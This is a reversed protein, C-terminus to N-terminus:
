PRVEFIAGLEATVQAIRDDDMEPHVVEVPTEGHRYHMAWVEGRPEDRRSGDYILLKKRMLMLALVFRFSVKAPDEQGDLKEFFDLLVDNGVFRHKPEEPTPVRSQWLSFPEGGEGGGAAACGDCLDDRRFGENTEFLAVTFSEGAALERGCRSCAGSPKQIDYERAM